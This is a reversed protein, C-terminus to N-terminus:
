FATEEHNGYIQPQGIRFVWPKGTKMGQVKNLIVLELAIKCATASSVDLPGAICQVTTPEGSRKIVEYAKKCVEKCMRM